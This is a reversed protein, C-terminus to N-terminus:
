VATWELVLRQGEFVDPKDPNYVDMIKIVTDGPAGSKRLFYQIEQVTFRLGASIVTMSYKMAIRNPNNYTTLNPNAQATNPYRTDTQYSNARRRTVRDVAEEVNISSDLSFDSAKFTVESM